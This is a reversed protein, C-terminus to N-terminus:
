RKCGSVLCALLANASRALLDPLDILLCTLQAAACCSLMLQWCLAMAVALLQRLYDGVYGAISCVDAPSCVFACDVALDACTPQQAATLGCAALLLLWIALKAAEMRCLLGALRVGVSLSYDAWGCAAPVQLLCEGGCRVFRNSSLTSEPTCHAVQLLDRLNFPHHPHVRHCKKYITLLKSWGAPTDLSM